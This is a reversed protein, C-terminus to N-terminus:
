TAVYLAPRKILLETKEHNSSYKQKATDLVALNTQRKQRIKQWEGIKIITDFPKSDTEIHHELSLIPKVNGILM